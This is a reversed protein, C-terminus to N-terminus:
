SRPSTTLASDLVADLEMPTHGRAGPQRYPRLTIGSTSVLDRFLIAAYDIVQRGEYGRIADCYAHMKDIDSKQPRGALGEEDKEERTLCYM